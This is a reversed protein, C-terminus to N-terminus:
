FHIKVTPKAMPMIMRCTRVTLRESLTYLPLLLFDASCVLVNFVSVTNLKVVLCIGIFNLFNLLRDALTSTISTQTIVFKKSPLKDRHM